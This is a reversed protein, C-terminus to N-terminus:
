SRCFPTFMGNTPPALRFRATSALEIGFRVLTQAESSQTGSSSFSVFALFNMLANM